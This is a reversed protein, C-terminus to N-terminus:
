LGCMHPRQGFSLSVARKSRSPGHFSLGRVALAAKSFVIVQACRLPQAVAQQQKVTGRAVPLPTVQANAAFPYTLLVIVSVAKASKMEKAGGANSEQKHKAPVDSPSYGVAQM